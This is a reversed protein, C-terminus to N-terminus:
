QHHPRPFQCLCLYLCRLSTFCIWPPIFQRYPVAMSFFVVQWKRWPKGRFPTPQTSFSVCLASQCLGFGMPDMYPIYQIGVNPQNKHYICTFIGYMSGIPVEKCFWLTRIRTVTSLIQVDVMVTSVYFTIIRQEVTMRHITTKTQRVESIDELSIM